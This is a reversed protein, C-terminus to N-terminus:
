LWNGVLIFPSWFYPSALQPDQMLALQAQRFAEAKTTGPQALAKYFEAMNIQRQRTMSPGYGQQHLHYHLLELLRERMQDLQEYQERQTMALYALEEKQYNPQQEDVALGDM